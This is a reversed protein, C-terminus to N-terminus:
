RHPINLFPISLRREGHVNRSQYQLPHLMKQQHFEPFDAPSKESLPTIWYIPRGGYAIHSLALDHPYTVETTTRVEQPNGWVGADVFVERHGPRITIKRGYKDYYFHYFHTNGIMAFQEASILIRTFLENSNNLDAPVCGFNHRGKEAYPLFRGWEDRMMIPFPRETIQGTARWVLCIDGSPNVLMYHKEAGM